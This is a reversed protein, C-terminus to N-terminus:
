ASLHKRILYYAVEFHDNGWLVHDDVVISPVGFVGQAIADDTAEKLRQDFAQSEAEKLGNIPEVGSAELLGAVVEPNAVDLGNLWRAAFALPHFTKFCGAERAVLAAKLLLATDARIRQQPDGFPVGCAAAILDRNYEFYRAKRPGYTQRSEVAPGVMPEKLQKLYVPRYDIHVNLDAFYAEVRGNGIYAWPCTYDFYFPIKM